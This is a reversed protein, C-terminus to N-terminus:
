TTSRHSSSPGSVPLTMSRLGNGDKLMLLLRDEDFNSFPWSSASTPV